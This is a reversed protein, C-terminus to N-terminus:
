QVTTATSLEKADSTSAVFNLVKLNARASMKGNFRIKGISVLGAPLTVGEDNYAIGIIQGKAVNCEGRHTKPLDTVCQSLDVQEATIGKPLAINFQIAATNGETMMDLAVVVGAKAKATASTTIVLEEAAFASNAAVLLLAAVISSSFKNINM